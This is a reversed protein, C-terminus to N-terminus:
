ASVAMLKIETMQELTARVAERGIGSDKFGGFPGNDARFLPADNIVVTGAEIGDFAKMVHHLRGTFIGASLGYPTENIM